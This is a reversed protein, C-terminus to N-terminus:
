PSVAVTPPLTPNVARLAVGTARLSFPRVDGEAPAERHGKPRDEGDSEITLQQLGAPLRFTPSTYERLVDPEVQWRALERDGALVRVSRARRFASAELTLTLDTDPEPNYVSLRGAKGVVCTYRDQWALRRNWGETCLLTPRSPPPLKAQEFVTTAEDEYVKAEELLAKLRDLHVPVEPMSGKWHHVILFRLGHAKMYVWAYDQFRVHSVLDVSLAEPDQLYDPKALNWASFPSNYTLLNDFVANMHSSYGGTTQCHHLAQWYGCMANLETGGSSIQPIELFTARPDREKLVAYCAPM